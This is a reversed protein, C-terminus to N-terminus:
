CNLQTRVQHVTLRLHYPPHVAELSVEEPLLGADLLAAPALLAGLCALAAGCISLADLLLGEEGADTISLAYLCSVMMIHHQQCPRPLWAPFM